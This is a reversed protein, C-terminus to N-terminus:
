SRRSLFAATVLGGLALSSQWRGRLFLVLSAACAASLTVNILDVIPAPPTLTLRTRLLKGPIKENVTACPLTQTQM